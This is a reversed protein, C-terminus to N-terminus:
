CCRCLSKYALSSRRLRGPRRPHGPSLKRPSTMFPGYFRVCTPWGGPFTRQQRLPRALFSLLSTDPIGLGSSRESGERHEKAEGAAGAPPRPTYKEELGQSRPGRRFRRGDLRFPTQGVQPASSTAAMVPRPLAARSFGPPQFSVM